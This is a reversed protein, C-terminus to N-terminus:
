EKDTRQIFELANFHCVSICDGCGTCQDPNKVELHMGNEDNIMELVHHNCQKLCSRCRTCNKEITHIVQDTRKKKRHLKSGIALLLVLLLLITLSIYVLTM